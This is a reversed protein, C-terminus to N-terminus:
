VFKLSTKSKKTLVPRNLELCKRSEVLFKRFDELTGELKALEFSRCEFLRTCVMLKTSRNSFDIGVRKKSDTLIKIVVAFCNESELNKYNEFLLKMM